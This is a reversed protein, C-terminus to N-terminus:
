ASIFRKIVVAHTSDPLLTLFISNGRKVDRERAPLFASGRIGHVNAHSSRNYGPRQNIRVLATAPKDRPLLNRCNMARSKPQTSNSTTRAIARKIPARKGSDGIAFALGTAFRKTPNAGIRLTLKAFSVTKVFYAM